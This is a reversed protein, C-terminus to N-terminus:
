KSPLRIVGNWDAPAVRNHQAIHMALFDQARDGAPLARLASHAEDWRGAVFLEVARDYAALHEATLEPLEGDGPLLEGVFVPTEMGYPLVNALRRTRAEGPAFRERVLGALGDDVVISVRLQRTMGELRSALNVVPGFATFVFHEGTGIRGAVAPGRALGIGVRFDALPHGPSQAAEAFERRIALAARCAREPDDESAVPWGWFGMASDGQFDGIVGGHASIHRTMVSLAQSVRDLLAPLDQRFTEAQRSFGRLDCFMVTVDSERPALLTADSEDGIASLVAPPLFQRLGAQQRELHKLRRVSGVIEAVLEAFKVDAQLQAGERLPGAAPGSQSRDFRGGLYLGWEEARPGAVPTCFAWDFEQMATYEAQQAASEWVHLVSQRRRRMADVALRRSAHFAGATERRREWQLVRLADQADLTIVGAADAGGIGALLLNVLRTQLEIDSRAGWIVEPLHSLVEMRRDPDRYRVQALAERSFTVEEVPQGSPASGEPSEREALTLSTSGVVCHRGVTLVCSEVADGAFYLLNRSGGLRRVSAERGHRVLEVHRRSVHPDWTPRIDAEADRGVVYIRGAELEVRAQRSTNPGQVLLELM